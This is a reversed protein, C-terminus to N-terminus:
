RIWWAPPARSRACRPTWTNRWSRSTPPDLDGAVNYTQDYIEVKISM